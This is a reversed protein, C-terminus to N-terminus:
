SVALGDLIPQVSGDRGIQVTTEDAREEDGTWGDPWTEAAVLARIRAEEEANVLSITPRGQERAAANVEAEIALVEALGWLRAEFTLPGMRGPNKVLEGDARLEMGKRLRNAPRKLDAYLAKLRRLPALYAWHSLRVIREFTSDDSALNCQVCGTRANTERAEDGGYADAIPLTPFGDAPAFVSLWDWVHCVRWHVLPALTDALATPTTEQFWGQGCEAGDRSCSMVIRQDRAASEGLRVGTLMLLKGSGNGRYRLRERGGRTTVPVREGFGLEVGRSELAALMPEVKLQPTCWRFTNSPPPVGRGLIYVFFRDDLDAMVIENEVGRRTLEALMGMAATHLPVLEMRTDSYFVKLTEPPPVHGEAILHSVVTLTASSDKGGSFALAWHRYREGYARLSQATLDLADDMTLRAGEFLNLPRATM